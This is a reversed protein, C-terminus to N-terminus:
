MTDLTDSCDKCNIIAHVTDHKGSCTGHKLNGNEKSIVGISAIQGTHYSFGYLNGHRELIINTIMEGKEDTIDIKLYDNGTKTVPKGRESTITAGLKM